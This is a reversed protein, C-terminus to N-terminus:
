NEKKKWVKKAPLFSQNSSTHRSWMKLSIKMTLLFVQNLHIRLPKTMLCKSAASVLSAWYVWNLESFEEHLVFAFCHPMMIQRWMKIRQGNLSGRHFPFMAYAIRLKPDIKEHFWEDDIYIIATLNIWGINVDICFITFNAKLEGKIHRKITLVLYSQSCNPLKKFNKVM